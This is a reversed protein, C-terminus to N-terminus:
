PRVRSVATETLAWLSGDEQLLISAIKNSPLGDATTLFTWSDRRFTAVGKDTAVWPRLDIGTAVANVEGLDELLTTQRNDGDVRILQQNSVFLLSEDVSLTLDKFKRGRLHLIPWDLKETVTDLQIGGNNATAWWIEAGDPNPVGAVGDRTERHPLMRCEGDAIVAVGSDTGLWVGGDQVVISKVQATALEGDYVLWKEGNLGTEPMLRALRGEWGAFWITDDKAVHIATMNAFYLRYDDPEYLLEGEAVRGIDGFYSGYWIERDATVDLGVVEDRRLEVTSQHGGNPSDPDKINHVIKWRGNDFYSFGFRADGYGAWVIGNPDVALTTVDDTALGDASTYVMWRNADSPLHAIGNASSIWLGDHNAVFGRSIDAVRPLSVPLFKDDVLHLLENDAVLWLNGTPSATMRFIQRGDILEWREEVEDFRYLGEALGAWVNGERDVVIKRPTFDSPLGETFYHWQGDEVSLFGINETGLFWLDGEATESLAYLKGVQMGATTCAVKEIEGDPAILMVGDAPHTGALALRGDDAQSLANVEDFGIPYTTWEFNSDSEFQLTSVGADGAVAIGGDIQILDSLRSHELDSGGRIMEEVSGGAPRILGETTAVWLESGNQVLNNTQGKYVIKVAAGDFNVVQSNESSDGGDFLIAVSLDPLALIKSAPLDPLGDRVTYRSWARGDFRGIGSPTAIWVSRDRGITIDSVNDNIIGENLGFYNWRQGDFHYVGERSSVWVSQDVGSIATIESPSLDFLSFRVASWESGDFRALGSGTAAWIVGERDAYLDRIRGSPLGSGQGFRTWASGDYKAVGSEQTGIWIHGNVDSAISTIEASPLGHEPLFKVKVGSKVDQVVVGGHTTLWVLNDRWLADTINEASTWTEVNPNVVLPNPLQEWEIRTQSVSPNSYFAPLAQFALYSGGCLVGAIILLGGWILIRFFLKRGSPATRNM